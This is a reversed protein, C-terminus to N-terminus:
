QKVGIKMYKKYENTMKKEKLSDDNKFYMKQNKNIQFKYKM